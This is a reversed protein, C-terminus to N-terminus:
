SPPPVDAREGPEGTADTERTRTPEGNRDAGAGDDGRTAAETAAETATSLQRLRTAERMSLDLGCWEVAQALTLGEAGTMQALATGARMESDSVAADREGLATLVQVALNQVRRERLAREKRQRAAAGLAQRRARQRIEQSGMGTTRAEV